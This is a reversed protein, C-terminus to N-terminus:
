NEIIENDEIVDTLYSNHLTAQNAIVEQCEEIILRQAELSANYLITYEKLIFLVKEDNTLKLDKLLKSLEQPSYIM